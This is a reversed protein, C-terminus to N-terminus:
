TGGTTFSSSCTDAMSGVVVLGSVPQSAHIAKHRVSHVGNPGVAIGRIPGPSPGARAGTAWVVSRDPSAAYTVRAIQAARGQAAAGTSMTMKQWLLTSSCIEVVVAPRRALTTPAGSLGHKENEIECCPLVAGNVAKRSACSRNTASRSRCVIRITAASFHTAGNERWVPVPGSCPSAAAARRRSRKPVLVRPKRRM